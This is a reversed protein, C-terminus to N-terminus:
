EIGRLAKQIHKRMLGKASIADKEIIAKLILGHYHIGDKYGFLEHIQEHSFMWQEFLDDLNKELLPNLSAKGLERHFLADARVFEKSRGVNASMDELHKKLHEINEETANKAALFCTGQEIIERYELVKRLDQYDKESIRSIGRLLGSINSNIVYTGKGHASELAGIGILQQIAMRVSVRSVELARTLENESPIKEGARWTGNELNKKLYDSVQQTINAKVITM